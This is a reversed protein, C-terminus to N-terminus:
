YCACQNNFIYKQFREGYSKGFDYIGLSFNDWNRRNIDCFIYEKSSLSIKDKKIKAIVVIKGEIEYADIWSLWSSNILQISTISHIKKGNEKVYKMLDNCDVTQSFTIQSIFIALFLLRFKM